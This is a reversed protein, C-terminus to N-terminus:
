KHVYQKSIIAVATVAILIIVTIVVLPFEPTINTPSSSPSPSASQDSALAPTSGPTQAPPSATPPIQATTSPTPNSSDTPTPSPSSLSSANSYPKATPTPTLTLIPTPQPGIQPYNNNGAVHIIQQTTLSSPSVAIVVIDYSYSFSAGWTYNTIWQGNSNYSGGAVADGIFWFTISQGAEVALPKNSEGFYNGWFVNFILNSPMNLNQVLVTINVPVNGENTVILVRGGPSSPSVGGSSYRIDQITLCNNLITPFATGNSNRLDNTYWLSFHINSGSPTPASVVVSLPTALILALTLVLYKGMKESGLFNAL